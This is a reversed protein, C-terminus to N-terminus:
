RTRDQALCTQQTSARLERGKPRPYNVTSGRIGGDEELAARICEEKDKSEDKYRDDLEDYTDDV